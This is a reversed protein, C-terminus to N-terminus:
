PRSRQSRPPQYPIERRPADLPKWLEMPDWGMRQANGEALAIRALLAEARERMRAIETSQKQIVEQLSEREQVRAAGAAQGQREAAAHIEEVLGHARLTNRHIRTARSVAHLSIPMLESPRLEAEGLYSEVRERVDSSRPRGM